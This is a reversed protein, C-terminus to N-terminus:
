RELAAIDIRKMQMMAEFARRARAPDTDGLLRILQRPVIHWSHPNPAVIAIPSGERPHAAKARGGSVSFRRRRDRTEAGRVLARCLREGAGYRPLLDRSRRQRRRAVRIAHDGLWRGRLECRALQLYRDLARWLR